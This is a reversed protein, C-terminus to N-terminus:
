CKLTAIWDDGALLSPVHEGERQRDLTGGRLAVWGRMNHCCSRVHRRLSLV